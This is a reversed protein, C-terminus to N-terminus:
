GRAMVPSLRERIVRRALRALEYGKMKMTPAQWVTWHMPHAHTALRRKYEADGAMYEYAVLGQEQAHRIALTHVTVGPSLKDRLEYDYGCQYFYARGDFVLNYHYGITADGARVHVLQIHGLPFCRTILRQHYDNFSASGFAGPKGRALWTHQHLAALKDLYSLAEAVTGAEELVLEGLDAYKRLNHRVKTRERSALKDVFDTGAGRLEELDIYYSATATDIPHADGFAAQLARLSPGDLMGEVHLEDWPEHAATDDLHTRLATAMADAYGPKCLLENYELCPSDAEHEGATNLYVRRVLFPGKRETRRVIICAGVLEGDRSRFHLMRPRLQEGFVELWTAISEPTLFFTPRDCKGALSSWAATQSPWTTWDHSEVVLGTALASM